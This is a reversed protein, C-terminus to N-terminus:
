KEEKKKPRPDATVFWIFLIIILLLVVHGTLTTTPTDIWWDLFDQLWGLAELFILVIGIFMAFMFFIVWNRSKELSFEKDSFFTGVLLLFSVGLLLLLVINAMVENIVAVLQTSAVVLFAMMLAVIANLNKKTLEHEGQKEVGLIKTKELIAFVITFVLLFPLVVDYVGFENLQTIADRFLSEEAM